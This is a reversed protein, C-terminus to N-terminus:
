GPRNNFRGYVAMRECGHSSRSSTPRFSQADYAPLSGRRTRRFTRPQLGLQRLQLLQFGSTPCSSAPMSMSATCRTGTIAATPRQFIGILMQSTGSAAHPAQMMARRRRHFVHRIADYLPCSGPRLSLGRWCGDPDTASRECPLNRKIRRHHRGQTVSTTHTTLM